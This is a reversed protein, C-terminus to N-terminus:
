EEATDGLWRRLHAGTLLLVLAGATSKALRESDVLSGVAGRVGQEDAGLETEEESLVQDDYGLTPEFTGDPLAVSPEQSEPLPPLKPIGLKPGFANFGSAFAQRRAGADPSLTLPKPDRRTRPKPAAKTTPSPSATPSGPPTVGPAVQGPAEGPAGLPDEVLSGSAPASRGSALAPDSTGSSRFAVVTYTREGSGEVPVVTSCGGGQCADNPAVDRRVVKDGELVTYSTLDPEAGRSWSIKMQQASSPEVKVGTPADPPISLIFTVSGSAGGSQAAEWTGNRAPKPGTACPNPTNRIAAERIWCRTDFGYRLRGDGELLGAAGARAVEEPAGSPETLTLSTAGPDTSLDITRHARVVEGRGIGSIAALAAPATAVLLLGSLPLLAAGRTMVWRQTTVEAAKRRRTANM